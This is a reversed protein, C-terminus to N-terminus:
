AIRLFSGLIVGFLVHGVLTVLATERGYNIGFLGPPELVHDLEPGSTESAMRPHVGPLLPILLTLAAVAHFAGFLGGKWWTAGGTLTFGVMYLIAFIQGNVLHILLGVVRARDLDGVVITGLMLPLDM